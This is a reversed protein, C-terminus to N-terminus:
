FLKFMIIFNKAPIVITSEIGVMIAEKRPIFTGKPINLLLGQAKKPIPINAVKIEIKTAIM